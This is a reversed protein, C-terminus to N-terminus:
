RYMRELMDRVVAQGAVAMGERDVIGGYNKLAAWLKENPNILAFWATADSHLDIHRTHVGAMIRLIVYPPFPKFAHDEIFQHTNM